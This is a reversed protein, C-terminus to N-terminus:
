KKIIKITDFNLFIELVSFVLSYLNIILICKHFLTKGFNFLSHKLSVNM